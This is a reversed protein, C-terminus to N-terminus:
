AHPGELATPHPQRLALHYLVYGPPVQILTNVVRYMVVVPLTVAAPVGASAMIGVMLAEYVGVGGPLISVFGAFNAVAYALIVAGINVWHGFAVFVLYVAAVETINMLLSYWFPAYLEQKRHRFEMYTTHAEDFATRASEINITEPSRPRVIQIIRNLFKTLATMLHNIRAKSGIVYPFLFTGIVLVTTIFTGILITLNSARGAVALILMGLLLLIEFSLFMLALKLIQMLSSKGARIGYRRLRLSFYSLGTVGGSPFLHNVMNLELAVRYLIKYSITTGTTAFMRQYLRAQGHYNLAEVPVLLLLIWWDIHLLQHWTQDLQHRIAYVLVVLALITVLNVILKWNRKWFSSQETM